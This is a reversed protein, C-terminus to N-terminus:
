EMIDVPIPGFVHLHDLFPSPGTSWDMAAMQARSWRPTAPVPQDVLAPDLDTLLETIQTRVRRHRPGITTEKTV